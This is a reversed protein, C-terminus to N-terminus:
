MFWKPLLIFDQVTTLMQQKSFQTLSSFSVAKLNEQAIM